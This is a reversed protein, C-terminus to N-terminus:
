RQPDLFFGRLGQGPIGQLRIERAAFPVGDNGHEVLEGRCREVLQERVVLGRDELDNVTVTTANVSRAPSTARKKEAVGIM